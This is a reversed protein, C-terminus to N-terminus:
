NGKGLLEMWQNIYAINRVGNSHAKRGAPVEINFPYIHKEPIKLAQYTEAIIKANPEEVHYTGYWLNMPTVSKKSYWNAIIKKAYYDWGGSFDIVRAVLHDKAIFAAMGGGQSQGAVAIESWKPAGNELYFGWNGEKDNKALYLLLKILRNEIADQPEDDILSFSNKGYLRRERFDSTCKTNSSLNKGRCIQAVAPTNIYSVNIVRYGQYVATSFLRKPGRLAIGGTGPMFFLLKGQKVTPNYVVLHPSNAEKIQADTDSPKVKLVKYESPFGTNTQALSSNYTLCVFVLSILFFKM